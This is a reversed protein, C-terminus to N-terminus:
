VKVTERKRKNHIYLEYSVYINQFLVYSIPGIVAIPNMYTLAIWITFANNKQGLAQSSEAAYKKGGIFWGLSFMMLCLIGSIGAILFLSGYNDPTSHRIYDSADSTAIYINIILLYFSSDKWEVLFKWIKPVILKTGQALIFPVFLTILVQTLMGSMSIGVNSQVIMPLLFPILLTIFVNNLLLSVAVFEVKGKKFGIIVPAAIATPGIATIFAAQAAEADIPNIISYVILSAAVPVFLIIFHRKTIIEKEVKVDLFTFFLLVMLFYRILFTYDQGYPFLIGCIISILLLYTKM